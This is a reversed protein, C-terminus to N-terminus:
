IGDPSTALDQQTNRPISQQESVGDQKAHTEESGRVGPVPDGDQEM